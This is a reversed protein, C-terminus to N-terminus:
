KMPFYIIGAAPLCLMILLIFIHVYTVSHINVYLPKNGSLKILGDILLGPILHLFIVTVYYWAQYKTIIVSPIWMINSLPTEEAVKLGIENVDAVTVRKIKHAASNYVAPQSSESFSPSFFVNFYIVSFNINL